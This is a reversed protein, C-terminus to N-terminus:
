INLRSVGFEALDKSTIKGDKNMDVGSNQRYAKGGKRFLVYNEGKGIAAPWFVALYLDMFGDIYAVKGTAKYYREVEDLQELISMRKLEEVTLGLGLATKPMWQILGTANSSDNVATTKLASEAFMVTILDLPDSNLTNALEFLRKNVELDTVFPSAMIYNFVRDSAVSKLRSAILNQRITFENNEYKQNIYSDQNVFVPAYAQTSMFMLAGIILLVCKRM